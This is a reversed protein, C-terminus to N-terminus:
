ALTITLVPPARAATACVGGLPAGGGAHVLSGEVRVELFEGELRLVVGPFGEDAVLVNSGMGLIAVPLSSQAAGALVRALASETRVRCLYRAPGGIRWTTRPALPAGAEVAGEEPALTLDMRAAPGASRILRKVAAGTLLFQCHSGRM